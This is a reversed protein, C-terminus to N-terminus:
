SNSVSRRQASKTRGVGTGTITNRLVSGWKNTQFLYKGVIVRCRIKQWVSLRADTISTLHGRLLRLRTSAFRSSTKTDIFTLQDAANEIRSSAASHVRQYFLTAPIEYYCGALSLAGMLVKESGYCAPLLKTGRLTDSRILGYSDVCWNTGLLVGQFRLHPSNSDHFKRPLGAESTNGIGEAEPAMSDLIDGHENIKSSACHVWVVEPRNELVAVCKELFEPECIDDYAAWKFYRGRALGFVYNFNGTAGVNEQQRVYSIRADRKEYDRCIAETEDTSANDSIIIEFDTYTQALISDIAERLYSAANYVPMGISIAPRSQSDLSQSDSDHGLLSSSMALNSDMMSNKGPMDDQSFSNKM